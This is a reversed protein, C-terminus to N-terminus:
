RSDKGAQPALLGQKAGVALAVQRIWSGLPMCRKRTGERLQDLDRKEFYIILGIREEFLKSVNKAETFRTRPRIDRAIVHYCKVRRAPVTHFFCLRV